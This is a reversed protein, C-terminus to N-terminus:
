NQDRDNATRTQHSAGPSNPGPEASSSAPHSAACTRLRRAYNYAAVLDSLHTEHPRHTDRHYRRVAAEKITRNMREVVAGDVEM